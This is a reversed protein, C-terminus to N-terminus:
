QRNFYNELYEKVEEPKYGFPGKGGQYVITNDLVIYLRDPWCDYIDM